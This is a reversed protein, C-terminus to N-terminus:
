STRASASSCRRASPARAAAIAFGVRGIARGRHPSVVVAAAFLSFALLPLLWALARILDASDAVAGIIGVKDVGVVPARAGARVPANSAREQTSVFSNLLQLGDGLDLAVNKADSSLLTGHLVLTARRIIPDFTGNQLLSSATDQLPRRALVANPVAGELAGTLRVALEDSVAPQRM